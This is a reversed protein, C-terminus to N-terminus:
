VRERCSARGIQRACFLPSYKLGHWSCRPPQSSCGLACGGFIGRSESPALFVGGLWCAFTGPPPLYFSPAWSFTCRRPFEPKSERRAVQRRSESFLWALEPRSQLCFRVGTSFDAGATTM